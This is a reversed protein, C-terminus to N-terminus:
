RPAVTLCTARVAGAYDIAAQWLAQDSPQYNPLRNAFAEEYLAQERLLRALFPDNAKSALRKMDVAQDRLVGIIDTNLARQEPGWDTAAIKADTKGWEAQKTAYSSSM